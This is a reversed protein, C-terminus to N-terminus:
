GPNTAGPSTTAHSFARPPTPWATADDMGNRRPPHRPFDPSWLARHWTVGPRRSGVSLAVSLYRRVSGCRRFALCSAHCPHFPATLACRSGPLLGARCVGGPALGFLSGMVNGADPGPLNSSRLPSAAGLPIVTWSLVRSIPRSRRKMRPSRKARRGHKWNGGSDRRGKGFPSPCVHERVAPQHGLSRQRSDRPGTGPGRRGPRQAVPTQWRASAIPGVPPRAGPHVGPFSSPEASGIEFNSVFCRTTSLAQVLRELTACTRSGSSSISRQFSNVVGPPAGLTAVRPFVPHKTTKRPQLEGCVPM